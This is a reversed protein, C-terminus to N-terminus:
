RTYVQLSGNAAVDVALVDEPAVGEADLQAVLEPKASIASQIAQINADSKGMAQDLRSEDSNQLTSFRIVRVEGVSEMMAIKDATESDAMLDVGYDFNPEVAATTGTDVMPDDNSPVVLEENGTGPNTGEVNSRDSSQALAPATLMTAGFLAATSIKLFRKM